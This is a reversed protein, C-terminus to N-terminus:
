VFINELTSLNYFVDCMDLLAQSASEKFALVEVRLGQDQALQLMPVFDGDGSALVLSDLQPWARVMDAAIGMDWDGDLVPRGQDDYYLLRLKRRRVRYGLLSLKSIFGYASDEGEREVVYATAHLLRRERAVFSLLSQYDVQQQYFDRASHYLNQTDVFLGARQTPWPRFAQSLLAM